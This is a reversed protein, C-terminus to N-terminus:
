SKSAVQLLFAAIASGVSAIASILAIKWLSENRNNAWVTLIRRQMEARDLGTSNESCDFSIGLKICEKRIEEDTSPLKKM